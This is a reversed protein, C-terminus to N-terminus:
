GGGADTLFAAAFCRPPMVLCRQEMNMGGDNSSLTLLFSPSTTKNAIPFLFLPFVFVRLLSAYIRSVKRDPRRLHKSTLRIPFGYVLMITTPNSTSVHLNSIGRSDHSRTAVFLRLIDDLTPVEYDSIPIHDATMHAVNLSVWECRTTEKCM